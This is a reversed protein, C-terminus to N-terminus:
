DGTFRHSLILLDLTGPLLESAERTGMPKRHSSGLQPREKGEAAAILEKVDVRTALLGLMVRAAGKGDLEQVVGVKGRFPGALVQVRIGKEIPATPACAM